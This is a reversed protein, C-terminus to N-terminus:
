PQPLFPDAAGHLPAGGVTRRMLTTQSARRYPACMRARRNRPRTEDARGLRAAEGQRRRSTTERRDELKVKAEEMSELWPRDLREDRLPGNCSEIFAENTPRGPRSFVDAITLARFPQGKTLQDSVFDM